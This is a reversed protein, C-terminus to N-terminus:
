HLAIKKSKTNKEPSIRELVFDTVGMKGVSKVTESFFRHQCIKVHVAKIVSQLNRILVAAGPQNGLM